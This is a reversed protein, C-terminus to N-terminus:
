NKIVKQVSRVGNEDVLNLLYIGNNLNSTNVVEVNGNIAGQIVKKGEISFIEFNRIATGEASIILVDSFPNPYTNFTANINENIGVAEYGTIEQPSVVNIVFGAASLKGGILGNEGVVLSDCYTSSCGNANSVTLCLVFNGTSEINMEPYAGTASITLLGSSITWNFTLDNGSTLNVVSVEFPNEQSVVYYANCSSDGPIVNTEPIIVQQCFNEFCNENTVTLCIDYVGAANYTHFPYMETSSSGDGFTWSYTDNNNYGTPIFYGVLASTSAFFDASCGIPNIISDGIVTVDVCNDCVFGGGTINMCVLYNGPGPFTHSVEFGNTVTGDGFNWTSPYNAGPVSFTITNPDSANYEYYIPCNSAPITDVVVTITQSSSCILTSDLDYVSLTVVDTMSQSYSHSTFLGYGGAAGNEFSWFYQTNNTDALFPGFFYYTGSNPDNPDQSYTFNCNQANVTINAMILGIALTLLKKM